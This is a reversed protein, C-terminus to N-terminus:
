FGFSKYMKDIELIYREWSICCVSCYYIERHGIRKEFIFPRDCDCKWCYHNIRPSIKIKSKKMPNRYYYGMIWSSM